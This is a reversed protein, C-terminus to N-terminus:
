VGNADKLAFEIIAKIATVPVVHVFPPSSLHEPLSLLDQEVLPV